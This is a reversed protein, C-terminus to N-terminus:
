SDFKAQLLRKVVYPWTLIPVLSCIYKPKAATLDRKHKIRLLAGYVWWFALESKLVKQSVSIEGTTSKLIHMFAQYVIEVNAEQELVIWQTAHDILVDDELGYANWMNKRALADWGVMKDALRASAQTNSIRYDLVVEPLSDITGGHKVIDTWLFYDESGRISENYRINHADLFDKQMMASPHAIGANCFLLAVKRQEPTLPKNFMLTEKGMVQLWGGLVDVGPNADLFKIQHLFRNERAYDDADMRAIYKGQAQELGLNLSKPLGSKAPIKIIRVRNDNIKNLYDEAADNETPEYLLLLEFDGFTQNLISQIALDLEKMKPRFIPLLVTIYPTQNM